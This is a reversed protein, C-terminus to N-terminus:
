LVELIVFEVSSSAQYRSKQHYTECFANFVPSTAATVYEIVVTLLCTNRLCDQLWQPLRLVSKLIGQSPQTWTVNQLSSHLSNPCFM